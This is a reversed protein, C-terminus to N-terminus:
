REQEGNEWLEECSLDINENWSIGYGGVDVQVSNFLGKDNVLEKFEKRKTCLEKIDYKKKSKDEFEILLIYNDLAKVRIVKHFM